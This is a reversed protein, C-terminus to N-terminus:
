LIYLLIYLLVKYLYLVTFKTDVKGRFVDVKRWSKAIRTLKGPAELGTRGRRFRKHEAIRGCLFIRSNRSKM